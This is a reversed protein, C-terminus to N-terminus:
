DVRYVDDVRWFTTNEVEAGKIKQGAVVYQPVALIYIYTVEAAHAKVAQRVNENRKAADSEAYALDMYKDFDPVCWVVRLAPQNCTVFGRFFILIGTPDSGASWILENRTQNNRNYFKDVWLGLENTQLSVEVGIQKWYDQIALFQATNSGQAVYDIPNQVKFGNPYGADALLKKAMAPDYKWQPITQDFAPTGPIAIQNLSQATGKFITKNLTDRDIAYNLAQRVRIDKLPSNQKDVSAKDIAVLQSGLDVSYTPYKDNKLADAQDTSLGGVIVDIENLKVGNVLSTSEPIAKWRVETAVPKRFPHPKDTRLKYIFSDNTKYEVLDYPGSGMPKQAFADKGVKEYYAKPFIMFYPAGYLLSTDRGQTLLDVTFKDVVRAGSLKPLVNRQPLPPQATLILNATFEVDASTLQTGDPFYLDQRLTFRWGEDNPLFDWKTAAQPQLAYKNDIQILSDFQAGFIHNNASSSEPSASTPFGPKAFRLVQNASKQGAAPQPATSGGTAATPSPAPAAAPTCAMALLVMGAM